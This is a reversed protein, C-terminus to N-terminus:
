RERKKKKMKKHALHLETTSRDRMTSGHAIERELWHEMVIRSHAIRDKPNHM